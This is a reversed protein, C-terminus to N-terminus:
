SRTPQRPQSGLVKGRSSTAKAVLRKIKGGVVFPFIGGYYRLIVGSFSAAALALKAPPPMESYIPSRYMVEAFADHAMKLHPFKGAFNSDGIQKAYQRFDKSTGGFNKNYGVFDFHKIEGLYALNAIFHYDNGIAQRLSIHKTLERRMMGHIMGGYVVKSYFGLVRLSSSKQELNFGRESICQKDNLWYKIEGSVLSYDINNELFSVYKLIAGPEITDDDAVWMFYKGTAKRLVFEFNKVLGINSNQRYYKIQPHELRNLQIVGKTDDSSCNDSIIVELHPYKQAWLSALTKLVGKSRNYTPIGISVLPHKTKQEM